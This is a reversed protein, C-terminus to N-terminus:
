GPGSADAPTVRETWVDGDCLSGKILQGGVPATQALQDADVHYFKCDAGDRCMPRVQPCNWRLWGANFLVGVGM